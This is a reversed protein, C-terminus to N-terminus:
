NLDLNRVKAETSFSRTRYGNNVPFSVDPKDTRANLNIRVKRVETSIRPSVIADVTDGTGGDLTYKFQLDTINEAYVQPNEGMLQRMLRPHAADTTNDIFYKCEKVVLILDGIKPEGLLPDRHHVEQWGNGNNYSVNTLYFWELVPEGATTDPDMHYLLVWSNLYPTFCNVSDHTHIPHAQQIQTHDGVTINCGSPNYRIVVTDPNTDYTILPDIGPPLDGGAQMVALSLEDLSFRANQQMDTVQEQVLYANHQTVYFAFAASAIIVFLFSSVLIELITLGNQNFIKKM